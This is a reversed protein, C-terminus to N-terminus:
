VTARPAGRAMTRTDGHGARFSCAEHEHFTQDAGNRTISQESVFIPLADARIAGQPVSQVKLVEHTAEGAVEGAGVKLTPNKVRPDQTRRAKVFPTGPKSQSEKPGTKTENQTAGNAWDKM